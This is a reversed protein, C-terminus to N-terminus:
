RQASKALERDREQWAADILAWLGGSVLSHGGLLVPIPAERAAATFERVVPDQIAEVDLMDSSFRDVASPNLGLHGFLVRTDLYAAQGLLGLSEFFRRPGVSALYFGLLSRVEGRAERGSARM